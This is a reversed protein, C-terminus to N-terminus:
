ITLIATKRMIKTVSQLGFSIQKQLDFKFVGQELSLTQVKHVTSEWALILPFQTPKINPSAFGEKILIKTECNENEVQSLQRGLSSSRMSILGVQEDSFNVYVEHIRRQVFETHKFNGTKGNILRDEIDVNVTLMLNASTKLKLLKALGGTNKQKQNQAALVM